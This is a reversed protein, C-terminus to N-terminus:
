STIVSLKWINDEKPHYATFHEERIENSCIPVLPTLYRLYRVCKPLLYLRSVASSVFIWVQTKNQVPDRDEEAMEATFERGNRGEKRRGEKNGERKDVMWRDRDDDKNDDIM